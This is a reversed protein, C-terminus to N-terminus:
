GNCGSEHSRLHSYRNRMHLRTQSTTISRHRFLDVADHSVPERIQEERRGNIGSLKQPRLALRIGLNLEDAIHHDIAEEVCQRLRARGAKAGLDSHVAVSDHRRQMPRRIHVVAISQATDDVGKTFNGFLPGHNKGNVWTSSLPQLVAPHIRSSDPEEIRDGVDFHEVKYRVSM